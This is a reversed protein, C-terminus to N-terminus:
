RYTLLRDIESISLNPHLKGNEEIVDIKGDIRIVFNIMPACFEVRDRYVVERYSITRKKLFASLVNYNWSLLTIVKDRETLMEQVMWQIKWREKKLRANSNIRRESRSNEVALIAEQQKYWDTHKNM